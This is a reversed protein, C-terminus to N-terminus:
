HVARHEIHNRIHYAGSHVTRGIGFLRIHCSRRGQFQQINGAIIISGATITVARNLDEAHLYEVMERIVALGEEEAPESVENGISYM